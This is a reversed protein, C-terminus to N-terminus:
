PKARRKNFFNSRFLYKLFNYRLTLVYLVSPFFVAFFVGTFIHIFSNDIGLFKDLIIRVGSGPLIHALYIVLSASGLFGFLYNLRTFMILQSLLVVLVISLFSIVLTALGYEDFYSHDLYFNYQLVIFLVCVAIFTRAKYFIKLYGFIQNWFFGFIFFVYFNAFYNIYLLNPDRPLFVYLLLSVLFISYRYIKNKYPILFSTCFFLFLVLLFWFQARPIILNFVESFSVPYGNTYKSMAVEILGQLLSWIIYPYILTDIKSTILKQTGLKLFSGQLFLGSLFFFLPMHFSYIISEMYFFFGTKKIIGSSFLGRLNHGLVVLLIGIGKAIDVWNADREDQM